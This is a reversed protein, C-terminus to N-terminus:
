RKCELSLLFVFRFDAAVSISRKHKRKECICDLLSVHAEVFLRLVTSFIVLILRGQLQYLLIQRALVENGFLSSVAVLLILNRVNFRNINM